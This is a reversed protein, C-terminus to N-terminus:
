AHDRRDFPFDIPGKHREAVRPAEEPSGAQIVTYGSGQLFHCTVERLSSDDEVVMITESGRPADESVQVRVRTDAVASVLPLYIRFTTGHGPESYVWVYAGSQKVIGYLTALGFGTGKGQEKTSFFPEFIRSQTQEDMGCGTDSV